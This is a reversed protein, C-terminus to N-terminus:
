GREGLTEELSKGTIKQFIQLYRKSTEQVVHEPLTPAPPQKNWGISEVYDRVFQKDLSPSDKGSLYSEADWFRSSDPTFVEDILLITDEVRGFEFKTDSILIGKGLLEDHVFQYLELSKLRIFEATEHGVLEVVQEFSIPLDHGTEAKTTPTFIPVPLKERRRLGEPLRIGSVTRTQEYDRWASGELYGRVICEVPLPTAKRCLMCRGWLQDDTLEVNGVREPLASLMHNGVIHRTREFWYSSLQTLVKGKQPIPQDFVVDFASLRDTAVILLSGDAEYVDRVKGRRLLPLSLDSSYLIM